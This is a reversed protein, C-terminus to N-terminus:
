ELSKNSNATIIKGNLSNNESNSLNNYLQHDSNISKDNNYINSESNDRLIIENDKNRHDYYM